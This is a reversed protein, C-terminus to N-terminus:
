DEVQWTLGWARSGTHTAIVPTAPVVLVDREGYRARLEHKMREGMEPYDVHIVGFRVKRVTRPVREEVLALMRDVVNARGRVKATPKVKGDEGIELIPRIDLLGAIMVQGRGVRGSALLRDFTDVTFMIGSQARVRTLERVVADIDTGLEALETALLVLLGQMVTAAQSDWLRIPVDPLQRAAAEASAFTGSLGSGLIVGLVSEGDVAARRYAELFAAPPPQSTTPHEGARMREIFTDSDIDVGDLLVHEPYVLSMPVVHIGHAQVVERPLDAASDTVISIPRRALSVHAAAAREVAAHQARMDEAKHTVLEGHGRLYDFVHEPDDTHIHVKLVSGTRLVILSDGREQLESRVAAADPLAEGRVLAETCYRFRTSESPYEVAAAVLPADAFSPPGPLERFPDGKAFAAIGEMITVFGKAGADVVGARRLAPLLDPTSALAAQARTLMLEVLDGFDHTVKRCAEDAIERMVTIITGEVPRELAAYVHKVADSLAHAFESANLRRREGVSNSFGLLFHSLIMGCNGRAGLIAAEAADQAVAAVSRARSSRLRTAIAAATLALNTGTDGDPVPFVNIRNLEARSHQVLDCGAVLAGRLRVGDLHQIAM